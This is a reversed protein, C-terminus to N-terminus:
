PLPFISSPLYTPLLHLILNANCIFQESKSDRMISSLATVQFSLSFPPLLLIPLLPFSTLCCHSLSPPSHKSEYVLFIKPPVALCLCLFSSSSNFLILLSPLSSFSFSRPLSSYFPILFLFLQLPLFGCCNSNVLFTQSPISPILFFLQPVPILFFFLFLKLTSSSSNILFLQSFFFYSCLFFCLM